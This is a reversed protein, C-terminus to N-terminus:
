LPRLDEFVKNGQDRIKETVRTWGLRLAFFLISWFCSSPINIHTDLFSSSLSFVLSGGWWTVACRRKGQFRLLKEIAPGTSLGLASSTNPDFPGEELSRVVMRWAWKEEKRPGGHGPVGLLSGVRIRQIIADM